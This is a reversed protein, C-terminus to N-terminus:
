YKFSNELCFYPNFKFRPKIYERKDNLYGSNCNTSVMQNGFDDHGYKYYFPLEFGVGYQTSNMYDRDFFLQTPREHVPV